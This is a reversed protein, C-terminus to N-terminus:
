KKKLNIEVDVISEDNYNSDRNKEEDIEYVNFRVDVSTSRQKKLKKFAQSLELLLSIEDNQDANLKKMSFQNKLFANENSLLDISNELHLRQSKKFLRLFETFIVNSLTKRKKINMNADLNFSNTSSKKQSTKDEDIRVQISNQLSM